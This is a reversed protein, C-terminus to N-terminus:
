EVGDVAPRQALCLLSVGIPLSAGISLLFAEFQLVSLAVRNVLTGPLQVQSRVTDVPTRWRESIIQGWIVPLLLTNVFQLKHVIFGAEHMMQCVRTRTYRRAGHVHADHAGRLWELAPLRMLVYGGPKLVRRYERLADMEDRVSQHYLVDFSTVLDFFEHGFPLADVSACVVQDHSQQATHCAIQAYDCAMVQGYHALWPLNGGTGCGTDLIRSVALTRLWVDAIHRMGVYWWHTGEVQAMVKYEHIEM